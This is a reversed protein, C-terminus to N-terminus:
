LPVDNFLVLTNTKLQPDYKGWVQVANKKRRCSLQIFDTTPTSIANDGGIVEWGENKWNRILAPITTDITIIEFIVRNSSDLRACMTKSNNPISIMRREQTLSSQKFVSRSFFLLVHQEESVKLAIKWRNVKERGDENKIAVEMILSGFNFVHRCIGHREELPQAHRGTLRIFDILSADAYDTERTLTDKAYEMTDFQKWNSEFDPSAVNRGECNWTENAFFWAGQSDLLVNPNLQIIQPFQEDATSIGKPEVQNLMAAFRVAGKLSFVVCVLIVVISFIRGMRQFLRLGRGKGNTTFSPIIDAM